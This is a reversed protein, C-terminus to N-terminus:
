EARAPGDGFRNPGPTGPSAWFVIVIIAGVFCCLYWLLWWWGSRDTDHFRRCGVALTPILVALSWLVSLVIGFIALGNLSGGTLAGTADNVSVTSLSQQVGINAIISPILSVLVVFLYWWWFESRSARGQFNAYNSFVRKISQGFTM